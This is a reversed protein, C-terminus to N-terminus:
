ESEKIIREKNQKAYQSPLIGFFDRFCKSFYKPTKFGTQYCVDSISIDVKTLIQAARKLRIIRIFENPTNDTISPLKRYLVPRSIGIEKALMSVDFEADDMHKEVADIARRLLSQDPSTIAIEHPELALNQSFKERLRKRSTILNKVRLKLLTPNFPKTLYDDAGTEMGETQYLISARATLLIIPIHSTELTTKSKRCFQLGDMEPMLVDSIILDPLHKLAVDWGIKGNSAELIHCQPLFLKKLYNRVDENDEVILLTPADASPPLSTPEFDGDQNEIQYHIAHESGKHDSIIEEEKFHKVGLPLEIVFRTSVDEESEAWITGHHLGVLKKVLALGIGSGLYNGSYDKDFKHFREFIHPLDEKSIGKGTDEIVIQVIKEEKTINIDIKGGDPTFKFANSLVNFFVNEMKNRDYWLDIKDPQHNFSFDINRHHAFEKFSLIIEMISKVFDGKAVQLEAHGAEQKRFELLQNVLLLLRNANRNINTLQARVEQRLDGSTILEQIPSLILTLPTRIEHSINTFFRLKMKNLEKNKQRELREFNLENKLKFRALEYKRFLYILSLFILTYLVYAWITQWPAPLITVAIQTVQGNWLGETNSAKVKFTYDGSALNSFSAYRRSADNYHWDDNTAGELQYAYKINDSDAFDLAAFEFTFDNIFYPISIAKTEDIVKQLITKNRINEGPQISRNFIKLDTVLSNYSENVQKKIRDPFFINLGNTGGFYMAGTQSFCSAGLNFGNGQLGHSTTYNVFTESNPNFKSIGKLTSIWLNGESDEEISKVVDNALGDKEQYVMFSGTVRDFRNLGGGFTGIWLQQTLPSEFIHTIIDNSINGKKGKETTYHIFTEDIPNYRNLGGGYTGIWLIGLHDEFVVRIDNSNLGNSNNPDHGFHRFQKSQWNFQSLGGDATGIWINGKLDECIAWIAKGSLESGSATKNFDSFSKNKRDFLFLGGGDTGIWLNENTDEYIRQVNNKVVNSGVVSQLHSTFKDTKSNFHSLGSNYAGVWIEGKKDEYIAKILNGNLSGLQGPIPYFHKILQKQPDIWNLGKNVMGLWLIGKSSQHITNVLNGNLSYPDEPTNKFPTFTENERDFINVGGGNTGVWFNGDSDELLCSVHNHSVSNPNTQDFQWSDFKEDEDNFRNLGKFETGVWLTGKRDEYISKVSNGSLSFPARTKSEFHKFIGNGDGEINLNLMDLGASVTGAWLRNKSDIIMTWINDDALSTPVSPNYRFRTFCATADCRSNESQELVIRNLGSALTAVWITGNADAAIGHVRNGSLSNSNNPDHKFNTFEDNQHNYRSVGGGDTGVWLSGQEDQFIVRVINSSISTSDSPDHTYTKFSYGDYRALGSEMGIWLFGKKDELVAFVHEQPLGNETTIHDFKIYTNQATLPNVSILFYISWFAKFFSNM